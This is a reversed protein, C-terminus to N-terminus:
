GVLGFHARGLVDDDRLQDVTREFGTRGNELTYVRDALDLLEVNQEAVM